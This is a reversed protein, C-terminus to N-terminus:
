GGSETKARSQCLVARFGAPGFLLLFLLPAIEMLAGFIRFVLWLKFIRKISSQILDFLLLAFVLHIVVLHTPVDLNTGCGVFQLNATDQREDGYGGARM